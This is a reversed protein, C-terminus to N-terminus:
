PEINEIVYYQAVIDTDLGFCIARPAPGKYNADTYSEGIDISADLHVWRGDVYAENWLHTKSTPSKYLRTTTHFRTTGSLTRCPIDAERLMAQLLDVLERNNGVRSELISDPDRRHTAPDTYRHMEALFWAYISQLKERETTAKSERLISQVQLSLASSSSRALFQQPAEHSVRIKENHTPYTAEGKDGKYITVQTGSVVVDFSFLLRSKNTKDVNCIQITRRVAGQTPEIRIVSSFRGSPDIWSTGQYHVMEDGKFLIWIRNDKASFASGSIRLLDNQQSLLLKGELSSRSRVESDPLTQPLGYNDIRHDIALSEATPDFYRYRTQGRVYRGTEPDVRNMTDWTVDVSVWRNDLWFENWSHEEGVFDQWSEGRSPYIVSGFVKRCPIGQSRLMAEFLNAYGDCVSRRYKLVDDPHILRPTADNFAPQDYFIHATLWDHILRVKSLSDKEQGIIDETKSRVDDSAYDFLFGAPESFSTRGKENNNELVAPRPFSLTGDVLQANLNTYLSQYDRQKNLSVYLSITYQGENWPKTSLFFQWSGAHDAQCFASVRQTNGTSVHLWIWHEALRDDTGWITLRGNDGKYQIGESYHTWFFSDSNVDVAAQLQTSAPLLLGLVFILLLPARLLPSRKTAPHFPHFLHFLHLPDFM